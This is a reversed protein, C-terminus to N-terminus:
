KSNIFNLVDMYINDPDRFKCNDNVYVKKKNEIASLDFVENFAKIEDEIDKKKSSLSLGDDNNVILDSNSSTLLILYLDKSFIFTRLQGLELKHILNIIDDRSENRYKPGYVYEGYISRNHIVANLSEDYYGDLTDHILGDYYFKFLDKSTPIGAHIIKTKGFNNKLKNILTDKGCNDIGEVIIVKPVHEAKYESMVDGTQFHNIISYYYVNAKSM